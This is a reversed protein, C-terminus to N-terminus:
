FLWNTKHITADDPSLFSQTITNDVHWSSSSTQNSRLISKKVVHDLSQRLIRVSWEDDAVGLDDVIWNNIDAIFEWSKNAVPSFVKIQPFHRWFYQEWSFHYWASAAGIHNESLVKSQDLWCPSGSSHMQDECQSYGHSERSCSSHCRLRAPAPPSGPWSHSYSLPERWKYRWLCWMKWPSSLKLKM